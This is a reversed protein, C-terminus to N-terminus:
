VLLTNYVIKTRSNGQKPNVLFYTIFYKRKQLDTKKQFTSVFQINHM